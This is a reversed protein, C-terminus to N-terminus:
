TTYWVEVIGSFTIGFLSGTNSVNVTLTSGSNGFTIGINNLLGAGNEKKDTRLTGGNTVTGSNVRYLNVYDYCGAGNSAAFSVGTLRVMVGYSAGAVSLSWVNANGLLSISTRAAIYREYRTGVTNQTVSEILASGTGNLAIPSISPSTLVPSTLTKNTLTQTSAVDVVNNGKLTASVNIQVNDFISLSMSIYSLPTSFLGGTREILRM